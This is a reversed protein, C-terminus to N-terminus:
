PAVPSPRPKSGILIGVSPRSCPRDPERPSLETPSQRIHRDFRTHRCTETFRPVGKCDPVRARV